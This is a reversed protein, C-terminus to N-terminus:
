EIVREARLLMARPVKIGLARATKLNLVFEFETPQEVPLEAPNAGRLIRAAHSASQRFMGHLSAAYSFLAGADATAASAASWPIRLRLAKDVIFQREGFLLGSGSHSVAGDPRNREMASFAQELTARDKAWYTVTRAGKAKAAEQVHREINGAAPVGPDLLIAVSKLSPVIEALIEVSKAGLVANLAVVGTVNGGPRALTKVLGASVPDVSNSLVILITSTRSRMVRAVQEIGVLLDPKLAVLEDVYAPLRAPAGDCNRVDYVLNKGREFGFERLGAFFADEYPRTTAAAAIYASGIRYTRGSQAFAPAPWALTAGIAAIFRRRRM